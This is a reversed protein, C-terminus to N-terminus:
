RSEAPDDRGPGTGRILAVSAAVMWVFFGAFALSNLTAFPGSPRGEAVAAVSGIAVLGWVAATWGLWRWLTATRLIVVAAGILAVGSFAGSIVLGHFNAAAAFAAIEPSARSGLYAVGVIFMGAATGAAPCLMAGAWSVRSWIAPEGEAQRLRECLGAFFPVYFLLFALGAFSHGFRFRDGNQAFWAVITAPDRDYAPPLMNMASAAFSLGVFLIGALGSVRFSKAGVQRPPPGEAGGSEVADRGV